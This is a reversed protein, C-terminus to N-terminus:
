MLAMSWGFSSVEFDEQQHASVHGSGSATQHRAVGGTGGVINGQLRQGGHAPNQAPPPLVQQGGGNMVPPHSPGTPPLASDSSMSSRPMSQHSTHPLGNQTINSTALDQSPPPPSPPPSSPPLDFVAQESM